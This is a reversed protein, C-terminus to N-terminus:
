RNLRHMEYSDCAPWTSKTEASEPIRYGHERLTPEVDPFTGGNGSSDRIALALTVAIESEPIGPRLTHFSDLVSNEFELSLGIFLSPDYRAIPAGAAEWYTSVIRAAVLRRVENSAHAPGSDYIYDGLREVHPRLELLREPCIPLRDEGNISPTTPQRYQNPISSPQYICACLLLYPLVIPKM